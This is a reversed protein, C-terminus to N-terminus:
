DELNFMLEPDEIRKKEKIKENIKREFEDEKHFLYGISKFSSTMLFEKVLNRRIIEIHVPRFEPLSSSVSARRSCNSASSAISSSLSGCNSM